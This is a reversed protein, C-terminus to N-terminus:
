EHHERKLLACLKKHILPPAYSKTKEPSLLYPNFIPTTKAGVYLSLEALAIKGKQMGLTYLRQALAQLEEYRQNILLYTHSNQQKMIEHFLVQTISDCKVDDSADQLLKEFYSMPPIFLTINVSNLEKLDEYRAKYFGAASTLFTHLQEPTIKKHELDQAIDFFYCPLLVHVLSTTQGQLSTKQKVQQSAHHTTELLERFNDQLRQEQIGLHFFLNYQDENSCSNLQEEFSTNVFQEALEKIIPKLSGEVGKLRPHARYQAIYATVQKCLEEKFSRFYSYRPTAGFICVVDNSAVTDEIKQNANADIITVVSQLSTSCVFMLSLIFFITNM